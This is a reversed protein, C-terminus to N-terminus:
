QTCRHVVVVSPDMFLPHQAGYLATHRHVCAAWRHCTLPHRESASLLPNQCIANFSCVCCSSTQQKYTSQNHFDCTLKGSLTPHPSLLPTSSSKTQVDISRQQSSQKNTPQKVDWYCMSVYNSKQAVWGLGLADM